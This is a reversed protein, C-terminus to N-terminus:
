YSDKRHALEREIFLLINPVFVYASKICRWRWIMTWRLYLYDLDCMSWAIGNCYKSLLENLTFNHGRVCRLLFMVVLKMSTLCVCWCLRVQQTTTVLAPRWCRKMRWILVFVFMLFRAPLLSHIVLYLWQQMNWEVVLVQSLTVNQGYFM